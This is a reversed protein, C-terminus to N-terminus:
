VAVRQAFVEQVNAPPLFVDMVSTDAHANTPPDASNVRNRGDRKAGYLAADAAAVLEDCNMGSAPHRTAVGISVTVVGAPGGGHPIERAALTRRIQEAVQRAGAADTGPLLVSFEEGGFRAGVDGARRIQSDISLAIERLVIDGQPHGYRDNYAKFCDADLMLLSLASQDRAARRWERSLTDDFQRRNALGTLGDTAAIQAWQVAESQLRDDEAKRKTVDRINTVVEEPTGDAPNRIVRIRAELWVKAGDQRRCVYQSTVQEEGNYFEAIAAIRGPRDDPDLYDNWNNGIMDEPSYGLVERIAPAVYRCTGDMSLRMIIDSSNEALTRYRLENTSAAIEAAERRQLERILRIGLSAALTTLVVLVSGIMVAKIQWDAYITAVSRSVSVVLGYSLVPVFSHMRRVGDIQSVAELGSPAGAKYTAFASNSSFNVGLVHERMPEFALVVGDDRIVAMISGDDLKIHSLLEHFYALRLSGVVVGAFSGDPANLRRSIGISWQGTWVSRFPAGVFLGVDVNQRHAEFYDRGAFSESGHTVSRSDMTVRGERDLVLFLGVFDAAAIRDFVLRHRLQPALIATTPLQLTEVMAQLAHDYRVMNGHLDHAIVLTLNEQAQLAQRWADHRSQVLAGAGLAVLAAVVVALTAILWRLGGRGRVGIARVGPKAQRAAFGTAMAAHQQM